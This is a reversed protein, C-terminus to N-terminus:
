IFFKPIENFYINLYWTNDCNPGTIKPNFGIKILIEKVEKLGNLNISKVRIMKRQVYVTSEDDFFARIWNILILGSSKKIKESIKWNKSCKKTLELEQVIWKTGRIRVEFYDPRYTCKRNFVLKMDSIFEKILEECTNTYYIIWSNFIM